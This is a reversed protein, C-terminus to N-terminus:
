SLDHLDRGLAPGLKWDSFLVRLGGRKPSCAMPGVLYGSAAPFPCLRVLPWHHGDSSVQLRLVRDEVTARMWFDTPDAEYLGTAWDSNGDTLVSSLMARGDSLEIGARVWQRESVRVMIGAQDYLTVFTGRVRFQCTFSSAAEFALFHGSDRIFGYHTERWFDTEKDTVVELTADALASHVKPENLWVGQVWSSPQANDRATILVRDSAPKDVMPRQGVDRRRKDRM